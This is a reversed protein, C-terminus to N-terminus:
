PRNQIIREALSRSKVMIGFTQFMAPPGKAEIAATNQLQGFLVIAFEKHFDAVFMRSLAM